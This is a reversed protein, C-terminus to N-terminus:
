PQQIGETVLRAAEMVSSENKKRGGGKMKQFIANTYAWFSDKGKGRPSLGREKALSKARDWLEEDKPTNVLGTPM